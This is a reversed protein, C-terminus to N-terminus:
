SGVVYKILVDNNNRWRIWGTKIAAQSSSKTNEDTLNVEIWEDKMSNVKFCDKGEFSVKNASESPNDFIPNNISKKICYIRQFYTGWDIYKNVETEKLWYSLGTNNNVIVELWGNVRNKCRFAFLDYLPDYAEPTLWSKCTEYNKVKWVKNM